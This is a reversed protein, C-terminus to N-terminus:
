GRDQQREEHLGHRCQVWCNEDVEGSPESLTLEGSRLIRMLM